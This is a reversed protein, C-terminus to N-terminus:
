QDVGALPLPLAVAGARSGPGATRLPRGPPGAGALASARQAGSPAPPPGRSRAGRGAGRGVGDARAAARAAHASLWAAHGLLALQWAVMGLLLVAPIAAVFEVSAQGREDRHM